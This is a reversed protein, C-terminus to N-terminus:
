IVSSHPVESGENVRTGPYRNDKAPLYGHYLYINMWTNTPKQTHNERIM